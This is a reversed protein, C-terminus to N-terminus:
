GSGAVEPDPTSPHSTELLRAVRRELGIRAARLRVKVTSVPLDTIRAVAADDFGELDRLVLVERLDFPMADLARFMLRHADDRLLRERVAPSPPHGPEMTGSVGRELTGAIRNVYTDRLLAALAVTPQADTTVDDGDLARRVTELVLRDAAAEGAFRLALRYLLDLRPLVVTCDADRKWADAEAPWVDDARNTM